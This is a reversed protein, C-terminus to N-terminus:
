SFKMSLLRELTHCKSNAKFSRFHRKGNERERETEREGGRPGCLDLHFCCCCGCLTEWVNIFAHHRHLYHCKKWDKLSSLFCIISLSLRLIGAIVLGQNVIYSHSVPLLWFFLHLNWSSLFGFRLTHYFKAWTQHPNLTFNCWNSDRKM